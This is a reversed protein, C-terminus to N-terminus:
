THLPIQLIRRQSLTLIYLKVRFFEGANESEVVERFIYGLISLNILVVINTWPVHVFASM